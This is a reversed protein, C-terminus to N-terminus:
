AGRQVIALSVVHDGVVNVAGGVTFRELARPPPGSV